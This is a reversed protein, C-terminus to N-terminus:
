FSFFNMFIKAKPILELDWCLNKYVLAFTFFSPTLQSLCQGCYCLVESLFPDLLLVPFHKFVLELPFGVLITLLVTGLFLM